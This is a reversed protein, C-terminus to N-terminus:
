REAAARPCATSQPHARCSRASYTRRYRGIRGSRGIPCHMAVVGLERHGKQREGRFILTRPLVDEVSGLGGVDGTDITEDYGVVNDVTLIELGVATGFEAARRAALLGSTGIAKPELRERHQRDDRTDRRLDTEAGVDEDGRQATGHHQRLCQRREIHQGTTADIETYTHAPLLFLVVGRTELEFPATAQEIM